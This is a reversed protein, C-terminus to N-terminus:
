VWVWAAGWWWVLGEGVDARCSGGGFGSGEVVAWREIECRVVGLAVRWGSGVGLVRGCM